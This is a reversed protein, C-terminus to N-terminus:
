IYSTGTGPVYSLRNVGSTGVGKRELVYRIYSFSVTLKLLDSSEYQVPMSAVNIPFASVFTYHLHPIDNFVDQRETQIQGQVIKGTTMEKYTDKEFKTIHLATKYDKPWKMRYGVYPSKFRTEHMNGTIYDIWADFYEVADYNSNVYFTLDLNADYTRRYAMKESVGAYDNTVDHTMMGNGPLSASNCMLELEDGIATYNIGEGRMYSAVLSPPQIKVHYVSTQAINLIRSKLTSTNVRNPAYGAM